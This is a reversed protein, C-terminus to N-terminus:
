IALGYRSPGSGGKEDDFSTKKVPLGTAAHKLSASALDAMQAPTEIGTAAFIQAINRPGYRGLMIDGTWTRAPAERNAVNQFVADASLFAMPRFHLDEMAQDRADSPPAAAAKTAATVIKLTDHLTSLYHGQAADAISEDPHRKLYDYVIHQAFYAQTEAMHIPDNNDGHKYDLPKVVNDDAMAHGAEHAMYIVSDITGDFDFEIVAYRNPNPPDYESRESCAALSRMLRPTTGAPVTHINWRSGEDVDLFYEDNRSFDQAPRTNIQASSFLKRAHKGLPPSFEEFADVILNKAEELTFRRASPHPASFGRESAPLANIVPQIVSDPFYLGASDERAPLSSLAYRQTDMRLMAINHM